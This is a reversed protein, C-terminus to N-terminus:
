KEASNRSRLAVLFIALVVVLIALIILLIPVISERPEPYNNSTTFTTDGTVTFSTGANYPVGDMKITPLETHGSALRIGITMKSGYVGVLEASSGKDIGGVVWRISPDNALVITYNRPEREADLAGISGIQATTDPTIVNKNSDL